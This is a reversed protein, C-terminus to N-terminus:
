AARAIAAWKSALGYWGNKWETSEPAREVWPCATLPLGDERAQRGAEYAAGSVCDPHNRAFQERLYRNEPTNPDVRGAVSASYPAASV